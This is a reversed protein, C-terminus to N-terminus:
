PRGAADMAQAKDQLIPVENETGSSPSRYTFLAALFIILMPELIIRAGMEFDTIFILLVICGIIPLAAPLHRRGLHRILGALGLFLVLIYAWTTV